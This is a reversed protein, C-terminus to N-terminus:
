TPKKEKQKETKALHLSPDEGQDELPISDGWEWKKGKVSESKQEVGESKM